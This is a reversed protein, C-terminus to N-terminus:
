TMGKMVMILAIQEALPSSDMIWYETTWDPGHPNPKYTSVELMKGNLAEVVGVVFRPRTKEGFPSSSDVMRSIPIEQIVADIGFLRKLFNKM